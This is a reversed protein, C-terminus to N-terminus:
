YSTQPKEGQSQTFLVYENKHQWISTYTMLPTTIKWHLATSQIRRTLSILITVIITISVYVWTLGVARFEDRHYKLIWVPDVSVFLGSIHLPLQILHRYSVIGIKYQSDFKQLSTWIHIYTIVTLVTIPFCPSYFIQKHTQFYIPMPCSVCCRTFCICKIYKLFGGKNPVITTSSSSM